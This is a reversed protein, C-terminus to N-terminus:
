SSCMRGACPGYLRILNLVHFYVFCSYLMGFCYAQACSATPKLFYVSFTNCKHVTVPYSVICEKTMSDVLCGKGSKEENVKM